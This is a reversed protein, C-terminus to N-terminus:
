PKHEPAQIARMRLCIDGYEDDLLREITLDTGPFLARVQYMWAREFISLLKDIDQSNAEWNDDLVETLFDDLPVINMWEQAEALSNYSRAKERLGDSGLRFRDIFLYGDLNEIRPAVDELWFTLRYLDM